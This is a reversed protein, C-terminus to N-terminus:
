VIRKTPLTLHTYSVPVFPTFKGVALSARPGFVFSHVGTTVSIPPIIPVNQSGYLGSFDAVIGVWPLIKGELSGNWGNLNTRGNFSLNASAYSYGLFANGRTPVQGFGVRPPLLLVLVILKSCIKMRFKMNPEGPLPPIGSGIEPIGSM